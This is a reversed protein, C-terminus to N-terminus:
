KQEETAYNLFYPVVVNLHLQLAGTVAGTAAVEEALIVNYRFSAQGGGGFEEPIQLGTVGLAGLEAYLSKSVLKAGEWEQVHPLVKDVLYARVAQRFAREEPSEPGRRM